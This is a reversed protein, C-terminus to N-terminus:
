AEVESCEKGHQIPNGGTRALWEVYCPHARSWPDAGDDPPSDQGCVNCHTWWSAFDDLVNISIATLPSPDHVCIHVIM